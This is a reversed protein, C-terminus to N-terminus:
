QFLYRTWETASAIHPVIIVNSLQNLGPAMAPEKEFVDLAAYFNPNKKCHEVLAQEDIVPGRSTNIIIANPKAM